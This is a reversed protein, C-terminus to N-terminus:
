TMPRAGCPTQFTVRAKRREAGRVKPSPANGRTLSPISIGPAGRAKRSCPRRLKPQKHTLAPQKFHSDSIRARFTRARRRSSSRKNKVVLRDNTMGPSQGPCGHHSAVCLPGVDLRYGIFRMMSQRTLGPLSSRQAARPALDEDRAAELRLSGALIPWPISWPFRGLPSWDTFPIQIRRFVFKPVRGSSGNLSQGDIRSPNKSCFIISLVSTNPSSIALRVM